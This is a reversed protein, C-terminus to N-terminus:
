QLTMWDMEAILSQMSEDEANWNDVADTTSKEWTEDWRSKGGGGLAQRLTTDALYSDGAIVCIRDGELARPPVHVWCYDNWAEADEYLEEDLELRAIVRTKDPPRQESASLLMYHERVIDGEPWHPGLVTDPSLWGGSHDADVAVDKMERPLRAEQTGCALFTASRDIFDEDM